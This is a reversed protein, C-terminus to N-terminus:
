YYYFNHLLDGSLLYSFYGTHVISHSLNAGNRFLTFEITHSAWTSQDDDLFDDNQYSGYTDAWTWPFYTWGPSQSSDSDIVFWSTDFFITSPNAWHRRIVGEIRNQCYDSGWVAQQETEALNIGPPDETRTKAWLFIKWHKGCNGADGGSAADADMVGISPGLEGIDSVGTNAVGTNLTPSEWGQASFGVPGAVVDLPSIETLTYTGENLDIEYTFGAAQLSGARSPDIPLEMGFSVEYAGNLELVFFNPVVIETYPSPELETMEPLKWPIRVQASVGASVTLATTVLLLHCISHKM